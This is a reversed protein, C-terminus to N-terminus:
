RVLIDSTGFWSIESESIFYIKAVKKAARTVPLPWRFDSEFGRNMIGIEDVSLADIIM